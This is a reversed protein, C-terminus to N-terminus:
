PTNRVVRAIYGMLYEMDHAFSAAFADHQWTILEDRQDTLTWWSGHRSYSVQVTYM